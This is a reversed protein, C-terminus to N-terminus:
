RGPSPIVIATSVFSDFCSGASMARARRRMTLGGAKGLGDGLLGTRYRDADFV